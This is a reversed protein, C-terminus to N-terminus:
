LLGWRSDKDDPSGGASQEMLTDSNEGEDTKVADVNKLSGGPSKSQSLLYFSLFWWIYCCM